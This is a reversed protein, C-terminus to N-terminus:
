WGILEHDLMAPQRQQRLLAHRQQHCYLHVLERNRYADSGGMSRPNKHHRHLEEGESLLDRGGVPCRWDQAKALKVDRPSLSRRTIKRRSWGYDRLSPDDPSATGRVLPHRVIKFWSFKLLYGGVRKDGFVWRDDREKNLKGGYRQVRWKKSKTPHRHKVSRVTRLHMWHDMRHFVASAVVTRFYNAWGRISPNLVKLVSSVNQGKLRLWAERLEHRKRTIAKQSPKILLKHGTRTTRPAHDHQVNFSLFDFGETRHVIRTKEESLSLGREALGLPLIQAKVVQADERSECFVVLDDAYRVVARTGVIEGARHHRVGLAAEMGHLAVNLLL